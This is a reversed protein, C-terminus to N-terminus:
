KFLRNIFDNADKYFDIIGSITAIKELGKWLSSIVSQNPNPKGLQEQISEIDVVIDIKQEESLKQNKKVANKLLNLSEGIDKFKANVKNGDGLTIINQGTAEIRIGSFKDRTFESPGDIKDIGDATIVYYITISPVITGKGTPFLKNVHKEEIWGQSILYTLNSIVSDQKFGYLNKLDRRIISISVAASNTKGIRSKANKNKNYFYKLIIDRIETTSYNKLQLLKM